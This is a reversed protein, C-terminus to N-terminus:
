EPADEKQALPVTIWFISGGEQRARYGATGGSLEALRKVLALGIGSGQSKKTFFLDFIHDKDEPLVGIGCDSISFSATEDGVTCFMEPVSSGNLIAEKANVVLNDLMQVLFDPDVLVFLTSDELPKIRLADGYRERYQDFIKAVSISRPNGSNNQLFGRLRDTMTVLRQTEEGIVYINKHYAEPLVRQLTACQVKIVGLPNKIEHALTRAAEGLQVLYLNRQERDRYQVIKESYRFLLPVAALLSLFVAILVGIEIYSQRIFQAVNIEIFVTNAFRIHGPSRRREFVKGHFPVRDSGEMPRLRRGFMIRPRDISPVFGFKRIMMVTHASFTLVGSESKNDIISTPASGYRYLNRGLNNYVGFGIVSSWLEPTFSEETGYREVIGTMIQFARYEIQARHNNATQFVFLVGISVVSLMILVLISRRFSSSDTM